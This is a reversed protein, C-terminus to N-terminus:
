IPCVLHGLRATLGANEAYSVPVEVISPCRQTLADALIPKLERALEVRYGKAGFAAALRVILDSAKM